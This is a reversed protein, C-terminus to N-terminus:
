NRRASRATAMSWSRQFEDGIRAARGMANQLQRRRRPQSPLATTSRTCLGTMSWNTSGTWALRPSDEPECVVMFKNHALRSGTMRDHVDVKAQKLTKRAEENEDGDHDAGNALILSRPPSLASTAV